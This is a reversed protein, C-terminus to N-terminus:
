VSKETNTKDQRKITKAAASRADAVKLRMLKKKQFTSCNQKNLIVLLSSMYPFSHSRRQITIKGFFFFFYLKKRRSQKLAFLSLMLNLLEPHIFTFCHNTVVTFLSPVIIYNGPLKQNKIPNYLQPEPSLDQQSLIFDQKYM